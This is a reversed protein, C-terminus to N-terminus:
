IQKIPKRLSNNKMVIDNQIDCGDDSTNSIEGELCSDSQSNSDQILHKNNKIHNKLLIQKLKIEDDKSTVGYSLDFSQARCEKMNGQINSMELSSSPTKNITQSQIESSDKDPKSDRRDSNMDSESNSNRVEVIKYFKSFSSM